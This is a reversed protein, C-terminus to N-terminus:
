MTVLSIEAQTAKHTQSMRCRIDPHYIEMLEHLIPSGYGMEWLRTVTAVAEAGVHQGSSPWIWVCAEAELAAEYRM